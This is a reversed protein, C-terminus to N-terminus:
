PKINSIITLLYHVIPFRQTSFPIAGQRVRSLGVSNTFLAKVCVHCAWVTPSHRRSACTVLGCQQHITGQRVRSLGVSNTFPAKICVHCAWVTPSHRRSACTVLGCQQHITGQRVRSLGVSNTFPAKVCVHCAWVTPSHRRSACTVLGCQQHIFVTRNRQQVGLVDPKNSISQSIPQDESKGCNENSALCSKHTNTMQQHYREYEIVRM